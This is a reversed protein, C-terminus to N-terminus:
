VRDSDNKVEIKGTRFQIVTEAVLYYPPTDPETKQSIPQSDPVGTADSQVNPELPFITLHEHGAGFQSRAM